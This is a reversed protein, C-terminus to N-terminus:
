LGIEAEGLQFPGGAGRTVAELLGAARPLVQEAFFQAVAIRTSLFAADQGPVAMQRRAELAGRALYFGGALLGMM